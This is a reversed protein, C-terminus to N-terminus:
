RLWVILGLAVAVLTTAILLTRLSFRKSWRIWPIAAFMAFVVAMFWHPVFFYREDTFVWGFGSAPAFNRLDYRGGVPDTFHHWAAWTGCHCFGFILQGRQSASGIDAFTPIRGYVSDTTNFSRVWLAILLVCAIGCVVSWVIRLKRFRM